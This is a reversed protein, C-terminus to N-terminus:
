VELGYEKIKRYLTREGIGLVEAAKRRNGGEERLAAMIAARELEDMRMGRRYVVVGPDDTAAHAWGNGSSSPAAATADAATETPSPIRIEVPRPTVSPQVGLGERYAEFERRLEDMDVRMDVLTRFIFELQTRLGMDGERAGGADARPVPVLARSRGRVEPPIDAPGIPRNPALVVMSEVLNRLERVNGPWHHAVLLEIAEPTIGPFPRDNRLSAERVFEAVLLPIDQARERLPPLEISLVNLRYYLDRRFERLAVLQKLEQNTAAVIRVDVHISEEGGVRLFERQELVRLLKTQTALPMEGIEDLFITGGHALEFLGRRSDIAGTFAGKEHGFLESELLTDPLAAVNVAIFRKHRRPSLAHLGRAVLEKGTGSEGTVLVTAQTPAIQVVRELAEHMAETEGIIGTERQLRRREIIRRGVLAIEEPTASPGFVELVPGGPPPPSVEHEPSAVVAPLALAAAQRLLAQTEIPTGTVVLLVPDRSEALDESPTVLDVRYGAARFAERLRGALPLHHTSVLVASM